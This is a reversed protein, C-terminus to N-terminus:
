GDVHDYSILWIPLPSVLHYKNAFCQEPIVSWRILKLLELHHAKKDQCPGELDIALLPAIEARPSAVGKPHLDVDYIVLLLPMVEPLGTEKMFQLGAGIIVNTALIVGLLGNGIIVGLLGNGIIVGLLGNGTIVGQLGKGIIVGFLGIMMGRGNLLGIMMGRGNLLGKMLLRGNLLGLHPSDKLGM